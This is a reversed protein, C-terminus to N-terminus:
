NGGEKPKLLEVHSRSGVVAADRFPENLARRAEALVALYEERPAAAEEMIAVLSIALDDRKEYGGIVSRKVPERKEVWTRAMGIASRQDVDGLGSGSLAGMIRQKLDSM